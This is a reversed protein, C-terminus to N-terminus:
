SEPNVELLEVEFILAQNPGIAGRAGREGYALDPPIFLKYTSGEKMIQLAETWGSIVGSVKFTIPEGRQYSSDFVTGDILTGKYHVKVRDNATPSAGDGEEIVKYQLGSETVQIGSKSRNEELFEQSKKLNKDGEEKMKKRRNNATKEAYSKMVEQIEKDSLKPDEGSFGDKLGQKFATYNLETMGQDELTKGVDVGYAYSVKQIDSELEANGSNQNCGVIVLLMIIFYGISVKIQSNM